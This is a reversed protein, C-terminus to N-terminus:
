PVSCLHVFLILESDADLFLGFDTFNVGLPSFPDVETSYPGTISASSAVIMQRNVQGFLKIPFDVM